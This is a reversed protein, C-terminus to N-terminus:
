STRNYTSAPLIEHCRRPKKSRGRRDWSFPRSRERGSYGLRRPGLGGLRSSSPAQAAAQHRRRDVASRRGVAPPQAPGGPHPHLQRVAARRAQRGHAAGTPLPGFIFPYLDVEPIEAGFTTNIADIFQNAIYAYGFPTPHVGDYGFVGGTLFASSFSIGGINLGHAALDTLIANADVLAAGNATAAASISANYAAVHAKINAVEAANLVAM